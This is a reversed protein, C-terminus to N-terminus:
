VKEVIFGRKIEKLDHKDIHTILKVKLDDVQCGYGKLLNYFAESCTMSFLLHELTVYEHQLKRADKIAKDFVLQLEENPEVM